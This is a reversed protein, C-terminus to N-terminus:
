WSRALRLGGTATAAGAGILQSPETMLPTLLRSAWPALLALGARSHEESQWVNVIVQRDGDLDVVISGLFGPQEGHLEDLWRLEAAAEAVKVPDLSNVRIVAYMTM